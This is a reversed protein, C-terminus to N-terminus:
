VLSPEPPRGGTESKQSIIASIAHPPVVLLASLVILHRLLGSLLPADGATYGVMVILPLVLAPLLGMALWGVLLAGRRQQEPPGLPSRTVLLIAFALVPPALHAVVRLAELVWQLRTSVLPERVVRLIEVLPVGTPTPVLLYAVLLASGVVAFPTGERRLVRLRSATAVSLLGLLLLVQHGPAYSWLGLLELENLPHLQFLVPYLLLLAGGIMGRVGPTFGRWNLVLLMMGAFLPYIAQFLVAFPAVGLLSSIESIDGGVTGMPLLGAGILAVGAIGHVVRLSGGWRLENGEARKRSKSAM